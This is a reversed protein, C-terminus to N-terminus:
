AQRSAQKIKLGTFGSFRNVADEFSKRQLPSLPKFFQCELDIEKTSITRRWTGTVQGNSVIMCDYRFATGGTSQMMADRDKYGMVLEDYPPLLYMAGSRLGPFSIEENFYYEKEEVAVKQLLPKVLETGMKCDAMTLGSWTAFDAITAPGRSNFYRKSLEALAAEKELTTKHAMREDLLAYTAQKGRRAGSCIIGELEANMMIYSLRHGKAMIAERSFADALANRTLHNGGALNKVLIDNCKNFIRDGLELQRYMYGNAAHVRPATLRLLWRIDAESVFHWTPRLLHTRLIHGATLEDEIDRDMLHPLRLGLSWKTQEYEQGQVAGFWAVMEAGSALRTSTLQQSTLRRTAMDTLTMEQKM